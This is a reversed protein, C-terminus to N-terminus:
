YGTNVRALPYPGDGNGNQSQMGMKEDVLGEDEIINREPFFEDIANYIQNYVPIGRGGDGRIIILNSDQAILNTSYGIALLDHSM